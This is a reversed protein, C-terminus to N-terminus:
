TPIESPAVQKLPARKKQLVGTTAQLEGQEWSPLSCAYTGTLRGGTELFREQNNQKFIFGDIKHKDLHDAPRSWAAAM